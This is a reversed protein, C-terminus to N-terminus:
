ESHRSSHHHHQGCPPGAQHNDSSRVLLRYKIKLLSFSQRIYWQQGNWLLLEVTIRSLLGDLLQDAQTRGFDDICPQWVLGLQTAVSNILASLPSASTAIINRTDLRMYYLSRVGPSDLGGILVILQVAFAVVACLLPLTVFISRATNGM